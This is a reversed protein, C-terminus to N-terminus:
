RHRARAYMCFHAKHSAPCVVVNACRALHLLLARVGESASRGPRRCSVSHVHPWCVLIYLVACCQVASPTGLLRARAGAVGDADARVPCWLRRRGDPVSAIPTTILHLLLHLHLHLAGCQGHQRLERPRVRSEPRRRASVHLRARAAPLRQACWHTHTHTHTRAFPYLPAPSHKPVHHPHPPAPPACGAFSANSCLTYTGFPDRAPGTAWYQPSQVWAAYAADSLLPPVLLCIQHLTGEFLQVGAVALVLVAGVALAGVGALEVSSRALTAVMVRMGAAATPLVLSCARCSRLASGPLLAGSVVTMLRLLRFARLARLAALNVTRGSEM